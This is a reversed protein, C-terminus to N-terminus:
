KHVLNANILSLAAGTNLLREITHLTHYHIGISIHLMYTPPNQYFAVGTTANDVSVEKDTSTITDASTETEHVEVLSCHSPATQRTAASSHM